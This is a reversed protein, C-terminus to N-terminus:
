HRLIQIASTKALMQMSSKLHSNGTSGRQWDFQDFYRIFLLRGLDLLEGENESAWKRRMECLSSVGEPMFFQTLKIKEGNREARIRRAHRILHDKVAQQLRM